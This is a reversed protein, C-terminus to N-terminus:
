MGSWGATLDLRARFRSIPIHGCLYCIPALHGFRAAKNQAFTAYFLGYSWGKVFNKALPTVPQCTLKGYM